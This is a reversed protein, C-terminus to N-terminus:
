LGGGRLFRLLFLGTTIITFAVIAIPIFSSSGPAEIPLLVITPTPIPKTLTPTPVFTPTPTITIVATPLPTPTTTIAITPALTASPTASQGVQTGQAYVTFPQTITKLIGFQDRAKITITHEGPTLPSQPRFIWTGNNSTKVKTKIQEDSHIEIEIETSPSATGRFVPRQDTFSENKKPAVLQPTQAASSSASFFPFGLTGSPTAVPTIDITFDYTKSLIITPVPTVQNSSLNVHSQTLPGVVLMTLPITQAFSVFSSVDQTRMTSLILSYSGDSKVKTSLTQANPSAIYVIAEKATNDPFIIKGNMLVEQLPLEEINPGTAVSFPKTEDLFTTTGSIISFLYTTSPSLNNITITHLLRPKVMNTPKDEDDIVTNEMKENQGYAISGLLETDTIYSVTFSTDTINTIRINKPTESPAATGIFPVGKKTFLTTIAIGFLIVTIGLLTPIRKQWITIKM